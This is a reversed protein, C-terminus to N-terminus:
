RKKNKANLIETSSLMGVCLMDESNNVVPVRALHKKVLVKAAEDLESEAEVYSFNKRMIREVPTTEVDRGMKIAKEIEERTLTGILTGGYLVPLLPVASREMLRMAAQLKTSKAVGVIHTQMVSSVYLM